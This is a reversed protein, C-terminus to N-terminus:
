GETRFCNVVKGSILGEKGRYFHDCNTIIELSKPKCFRKFGQEIDDRSAAFDNDSSIFFKPKNSTEAFKLDYKGFPTSICVIGKVDNDSLGVRMAQIAGFSYGAIYYTSRYDSRTEKKLFNMASIVDTVFDGYDDTEMSNEWYEFKQALDDFKSESEGVGRYNFRLTIFGSKTLAKALSLIVNNDMNGGLGPHPSCLLVSQPNLITSQQNEQPNCITAEDACYSLVGELRFDESYFNVCEEIM